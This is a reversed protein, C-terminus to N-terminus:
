PVAMPVGEPLPLRATVTWGAGPDSAVDLSGGLAKVREGMGILGYGTGVNASMGCGDDSVRAVLAGAECGITIAIASPRGHRMANSLCEQVVRYLTTDLLEGRGAAGPAIALRYDIEPYRRRWFEILQAIADGLGFEALGIPRLRRLMSKVQKQLHGVAEAIAAAPGAIAAFGGAEAQRRINAADINIAFLFPGVEDHLDRALETREQEQLSLLQQNLGRNVTAMAFLQGAMRNFGDRLRSLEPPLREELRVAYDGGGIRAFGAALRDLPRLAHGIFLYILVMTPASFLALLLLSDGFENWIELVENHPVTEITIAGYDRGAVAVPIRVRRPEVGILREFWRPAAARPSADPSAVAQEAGSLTVRLHRNGRFSAVLRPLDRAPDDSRELTSLGLAVIQQGVALASGMEAEVSRSANLCAATGGLVLSAAFVLAVLGILRLRLSIPTTRLRGEAGRV